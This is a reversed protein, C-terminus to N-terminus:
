MDNGARHAVLNATSMALPGFLNRKRGMRVFNTETRKQKKVSSAAARKRPSPAVPANWGVIGLLAFGTPGASAPIIQIGPPSNEM